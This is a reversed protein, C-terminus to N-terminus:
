RKRLVLAGGLLAIALGAAVLIPVLNSPAAEESPFDTPPPYYVSEDPAVPVLEMQGTQRNQRWQMWAQTGTQAIQQWTESDVQGAAEVVKKGIGAGRTAASAASAAGAGKKLGAVINAWPIGAYAQAQQLTSPIFEMHVTSKPNSRM